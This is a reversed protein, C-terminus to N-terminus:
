RERVTRLIEKALAKIESNEEKLTELSALVPTQTLRALIEANISRENLDAAKKIEAHLEEPIRLATKIRITNQKKAITM